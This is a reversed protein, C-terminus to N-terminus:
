SEGDTTWALVLDYAVALVIPGLFLGVLGHTLTGGLVGIFIVLMPTELGRAMVVPKLVNDMFLVPVMYVTFILAGGTSMNLWAWIIAPILVLAPGIQVIGLVLAAMAIPGAGPVGAVMLGVGALLAQLMSIGIVGRSVNRITTGGLTVFTEGRPGAIRSSFRAVGRVLAPGPRFLFGSIIVSAAFMMVSSGLGAIRVLLAEGLGLLAGGYDALFARLNGALLTWAEHLKAGILPLEQMRAPMEPITLTGASLGTALTHVSEFLSISLAATPGLIIVLGFITILAAALSGRGGLMRTLWVHFPYTAVTLIVGWIVVMVFPGIIQLASYALLFILGLRVAIDIAMQEPTRRRDTM